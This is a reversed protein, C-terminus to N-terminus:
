GSIVPQTSGSSAKSSKSKQPYPPDGTGWAPGLCVIYNIIVKFRRMRRNGSEDVPIVSM